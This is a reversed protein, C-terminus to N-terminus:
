SPTGTADEKRVAGGALECYMLALCENFIYCAAIRLVATAFNDIVSIFHMM